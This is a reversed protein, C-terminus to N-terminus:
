RAIKGIIISLVAFAVGLWITIRYLGGTVGRAAFLDTAGGGLLDGGGQKPEQLLVVWVLAAAVMLYILVILTYLFGM